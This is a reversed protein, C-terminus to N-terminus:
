HSILSKIFFDVSMNSIYFLSKIKYLHAANITKPFTCVELVLIVESYSFLGKHCFGLDAPHKFHLRLTCSCQVLKYSSVPLRNISESDM